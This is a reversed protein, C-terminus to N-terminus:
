GRIDCVHNMKGFDFLFESSLECDSNANESYKMINIIWEKLQGAEKAIAFAKKRNVFRLDDAMFGEVFKLRDEMGIHSAIQRCHAHSIGMVYLPKKNVYYKICASIIKRM